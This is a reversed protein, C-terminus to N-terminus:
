WGGGPYCVDRKRFGANSAGQSIKNVRCDMRRELRMNALDALLREFTRLIQLFMFLDVGLFVVGLVFVGLRDGDGVRCIRRPDFSLCPWRITKRGLREM